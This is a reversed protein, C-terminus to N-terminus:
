TGTKRAARQSEDNQYWQKVWRGVEERRNGYRKQTTGLFKGYNGEIQLLDDDTFQGWQRKLQGKFQNWFGKFPERNM